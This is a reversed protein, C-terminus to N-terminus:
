VLYLPPNHVVESCYGVVDPALWRSPWAEAGRSAPHSSAGLAGEAPRRGVSCALTIRVTTTRGTVAGLPQQADGASNVRRGEVVGSGCIVRACMLECTTWTM